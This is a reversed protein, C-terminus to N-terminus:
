IGCSGVTGSINCAWGPHDQDDGDGAKIMRVWGLDVNNDDDDFYVDGSADGAFHLAVM